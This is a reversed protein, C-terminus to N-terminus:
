AFNKLAARYTPALEKWLEQRGAANVRMIRAPMQGSRYAMGAATSPAIGCAAPPVGKSGIVTCTNFGPTFEGFLVGLGASSRM